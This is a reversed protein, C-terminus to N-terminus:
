NYTMYWVFWSVLYMIHVFIFGVLHGAGDIGENFLNIISFYSKGVAQSSRLWLRVYYCLMLISTIILYINKAEM